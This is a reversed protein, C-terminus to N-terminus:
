SFSSTFRVIQLRPALLGLLREGAMLPNCKRPKWFNRLNGLKIIIVKIEKRVPWLSMPLEVTWQVAQIEFCISFSLWQLSKNQSPCHFFIRNGEYKCGQPLSYLSCRKIKDTVWNRDSAVQNLNLVKNTNRKLCLWQFPFLLQVILELVCCSSRM